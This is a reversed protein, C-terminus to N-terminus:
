PTEEQEQPRQQAAVEAATTAVSRVEPRGTLPHRPHRFTHRYGDDVAASGTYQWDEGNYLTNPLPPIQASAYAV